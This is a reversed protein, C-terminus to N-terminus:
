FGSNLRQTIDGAPNLDEAVLQKMKENVYELCRQFQSHPYNQSIYFFAEAAKTSAIYKDSITQAGFMGNYDSPSESLYRDRKIQKAYTAQDKLDHHLM